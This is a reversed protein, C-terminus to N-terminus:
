KRHLSYVIHTTDSYICVHACLNIAGLNLNELFEACYYNNSHEPRVWDKSVFLMGNDCALLAVQMRHWLMFIHIVVKVLGNQMMRSLADFSINVVKDIMRALKDSYMRKAPESPKKHPLSIHGITPSMGFEVVQRYAM